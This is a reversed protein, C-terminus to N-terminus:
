EADVEQIEHLELASEAFSLLSLSLQNLETRDKGNALSTLLPAQALSEVAKWFQTDDKSDLITKVLAELELIKASESASAGTKKQQIIAPVETLIRRFTLALSMEKDKKDWRPTKVKKVAGQTATSLDVLRELPFDAGLHGALAMRFLRQLVTLERMREFVERDRQSSNLYDMLRDRIRKDFQTFVIPAIGVDSGSTDLALQFKFYLPRLDTIPLSKDPLRLFDLNSDCAFSEDRIGSVLQGGPYPPVFWANIKDEILARNRGKLERAFEIALYSQFVVISPLNDYRKILRIIGSDFVGSRVIVSLNIKDNSQIIKLAKALEDDDLYIAKISYSKIKKELIESLVKRDSESLSKIVESILLYRCMQIYKYIFVEAHAQEAVRKYDEDSSTLAQDFVLKDLTIMDNGLQTDVLAPHIIIRHQGFPPASMITIALPRGDAAFALAQRVTSAEFERDLTITSDNRFTLMLKLKGDNQVWTLNVIDLPSVPTRPPQGLVVGGVDSWGDVRGFDRTWKFRASQDQRVKESTLGQAFRGAAAMPGDVTGPFWEDFTVTNKLVVADKKSGPVLATTSRFQELTPPRDKINLALAVQVDDPLRNSVERMQFVKGRAMLPRMRDYAIAERAADNTPVKNNLSLSIFKKFTKDAYRELFNEVIPSLVEKTVDWVPGEGPLAKAVFGVFTERLADKAELHAARPNKIGANELEQILEKKAKKALRPWASTGVVEKRIREQVYKGLLTEEEPVSSAKSFIETVVRVGPETKASAKIPTESVAVSPSEHFDKAYSELIARRVEQTRLSGEASPPPKRAPGKSPGNWDSSSQPPNGWPQERSQQVFVRALYRIADDDSPPTSRNDLEEPDSSKDSVDRKETVKQWQKDVEESSLEVLRQDLLVVQMRLQNGLIGSTMAILSLFTLVLSALALAKSGHRIGLRLDDALVWGTLRSSLSGGASSSRFNKEAEEDIEAKKSELRRQRDISQIELRLRYQAEKYKEERAAAAATNEGPVPGYARDNELMKNTLVTMESTPELPELLPDNREIQNIIRANVDSVAKEYAAHIRREASRYTRGILFIGCSFLAFVFWAWYTSIQEVREAWEQTKRLLAVAQEPTTPNLFAQIVLFMLGVILYVICGVLAISGVANMLSRVFITTVKSKGPQVQIIRSNLVLRCAFWLVALCFASLFLSM